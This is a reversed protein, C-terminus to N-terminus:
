CIALYRDELERIKTAEAPTKDGYGLLHLIGHIIVRALENDFPVNYKASNQRVTDISIMLDGSIVKRGREEETCDFTIIDTFYDHRLYERNIRLLYSDSCFVVNINGVSANEAGAVQKIWATTKTKGKFLFACDETHYKVAM